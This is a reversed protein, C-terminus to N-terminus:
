TALVPYKTVNKTVLNCLHGAKNYGAKYVTTFNEFFNERIEFFNKWFIGLIEGM